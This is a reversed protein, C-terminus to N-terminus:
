ALDPSLAVLDTLQIGLFLVIMGGVSYFLVDRRLLPGTIPVSGLLRTVVHLLLLPFLARKLKRVM